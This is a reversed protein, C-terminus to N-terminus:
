VHTFKEVPQSTAMGNIPYAPDPHCVFQIHSQKFLAIDSILEKNLCICDVLLQAFQHIIEGERPEIINSAEVLTQITCVDISVSYAFAEFFRTRLEILGSKLDELRWCGYAYGYPFLEPAKDWFDTLTKLRWLRGWNPDLVLCEPHLAGEVLVGHSDKFAAYLDSFANFQYGICDVFKWYDELENLDNLNDFITIFDALPLMRVPKETIDISDLATSGQTVVIIIRIEDANLITKGGKKVELIRGDTLRSFYIPIDQARKVYIDKATRLVHKCSAYNCACILCISANTVVVCSVPLDKYPKDGVISIFPGMFTKSFRETVFQALQQHTAASVGTIKKNAWFDIVVGTANRMSIPIWIRESGVALFPLATGEMVSNEFAERSAPLKYSGFHTCFAERVENSWGMVNRSVQQIKEKCTQWFDAPPMEVCGKEADAIIQTRLSPISKIIKAQLAIVLDMQTLAEPIDAYTSRFAEIFDPIREIDSEYFIPVLDQGLRVRIHGWDAKFVGEELTPFEPWAKYLSEIFIRFETYDTIRISNQCDNQLELLVGWAFIHKIPSGTNPPWLESIYLAIAADFRNYRCFLARMAELSQSFERGNNVATSVHERLSVVERKLRSSTVKNREPKARRKDRSKKGM